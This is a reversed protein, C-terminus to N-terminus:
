EDDPGGASRVRREAEGGPLPAEGVLDFLMQVVEDFVTMNVAYFIFRGRRERDLLGADTLIQLHHSLTPKSFDFSEALSGAALEGAEKLRRVILRRDPHALARVADKM